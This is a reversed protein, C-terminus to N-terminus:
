CNIDLSLEQTFYGSEKKESTKMTNLVELTCQLSINYFLAWTFTRRSPYTRRTYSSSQAGSINLETGLFKCRTV